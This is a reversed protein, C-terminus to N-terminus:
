KKPPTSPQATAPQNPRPTAPKADAEKPAPPVYEGRVFAELDKVLLNLDTRGKSMSRHVRDFAGMVVTVSGYKKAEVDKSIQALRETADTATWAKKVDEYYPRTKEIERALTAGDMKQIAAWSPDEVDNQMDVLDAFFQKGAEPGTYHEQVWDVAMRKEIMLAGLYDHTDDGVNKRAADLIRRAAEVDLTGANLQGRIQTYALAEIAEGVLSSILLGGRSSHVSLRFIAAYREAAGALDKEAICRRADLGLYRAYRRMVGLHPLLAGFGDQYQVGWDCDAIQTAEILRRFYPQQEVLYKRIEESPMDGDNLDSYANQLKAVMEVDLLDKLQYYVLAANQRGELNPPAPPTSKLTSAPPTPVPSPQAMVIPALAMATALCALLLRHSDQPQRQM